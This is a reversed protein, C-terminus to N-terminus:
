PSKRRLFHRFNSNEANKRHLILKFRDIKLIDFILFNLNSAYIYPPEPSFNLLIQCFNRGRIRKAYFIRFKLNKTNKKYSIRGFDRVEFHLLKQLRCFKSMGYFAEPREWPSRGFLSLMIKKVRIGGIAKINITGVPLTKGLLSSNGGWLPLCRVFQPVRTQKLTPQNLYRWFTVM